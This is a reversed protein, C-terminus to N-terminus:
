KNIEKLAENEWKKYNHKGYYKIPNVENLGNEDYFPNIINTGTEEHEFSIFDYNIDSIMMQYNGLDRLAKENKM